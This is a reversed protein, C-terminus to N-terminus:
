EKIPMIIYLYDEKVVTNEGELTEVPRVTCPSASDNMSFQAYSSNLNSLGDNLYRHNLIIKNVEGSVKSEVEIRSEGVMANAASVAMAEKTFELTVDNIGMRSFLSATKGAKTFDSVEIVASTKASKPIIQKYDPYTGEILRSILEVNHYTMLVQNDQFYIELEGKAQDSGSLGLSSNVNNIIRQMEGLARAPMIVERSEKGGCKIVKEALRYSDTAAMVLSGNEFKMYVGSIEPRTESNAAAFIVQGIAKSFESAQCLFPDKKVVEPLMPFDEAPSGKISTATNTAKIKLFDKEMSLDLTETSALGVFDSLLKSQVTFSGEDDVKGRIQCKIGLELNTTVLSITGKEAKILVNNLIPLTTNRAAVHSVIDLGQSFNLQTCTFKM